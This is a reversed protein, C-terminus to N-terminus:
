RLILMPIYKICNLRFSIKKSLGYKSKSGTFSFADEHRRYYVLKEEIFCTKYFLESVFGIWLDHLPIDKPFPLSKNLIKRNFAMCCGIYNNKILNRILGKKSGYLNFFSNNTIEGFNNTIFCDSVIMDFKNFYKSTIEVKNPAWVDDQDSLFIFDGKANKLANELNFIPSKFKNNEFLIIRKDNFSKIINITEDTSSDDSIIIEDQLDLQTLISSLQEHIYKEGNFTALCVSIM